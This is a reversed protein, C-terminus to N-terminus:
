NLFGGWFNSGGVAKSRGTRITVIVHGIKFFDRCMKRYRYNFITRIRTRQTRSSFIRFVSFERSSSPKIQVYGHRRYRELSSIFAGSFLARPSSNRFTQTTAIHRRFEVIKEFANLVFFIVYQETHRYSIIITVFLVNYVRIVCKTTQVRLGLNNM